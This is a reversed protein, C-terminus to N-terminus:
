AAREDVRPFYVEFTTVRGPEAQVVIDGGLAVIQEWIEPFAEQADMATPLLVRGAHSVSLLVHRGPCLHTHSRAYENLLEVNDTEVTIRGGAPLRRRCHLVLGLIIRELWAPDANIAGTEAGLRAEIENEQGAALVLLRELGEVARNLRITRPRPPRLEVLALARDALELGEAAAEEMANLASSVHEDDDLLPRLEGARASIRELCSQLDRTLAEALGGLFGLRHDCAEASLASEAPQDSVPRFVLVAGVVERDEDHLPDASGQIWTEGGRRNVLTAHDGLGITKGERMARAVPDGLLSGIRSHLTVFVDGIHHGIASSQKWGTLKEATSNLFSVKGDCQTLIVAETFTRLATVLRRESEVLKREQPHRHLAIEVASRLAREDFPKLVYGSPSSKKARELIEADAYATLFVIPIGLRDHLEGAADVGDMAGKLKIDMLVLDPQTEIARRIASVGSAAAGVVVYGLKRLCEEVDAAVVREDEVVLIKPKFAQTRKSSM